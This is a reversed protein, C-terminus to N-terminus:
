INGRTPIGKDGPAHTAGCGFGAKRSAMLIRCMEGNARASTTVKRIERKHETLGEVAIANGAADTLAITDADVCLGIEARKQIYDDWLVGLRGAKANAAHRFEYVRSRLLFEATFGQETMFSILEGQRMLFAKEAFTRRIDSLDGRAQHPFVASFDLDETIGRNIEDAAFHDVLQMRFTRVWDLAMVATRMDGAMLYVFNAPCWFTPLRLSIEVEGDDICVDVIFDLSVITEDIEPDRVSSIAARVEAERNSSTAITNQRQVALAM